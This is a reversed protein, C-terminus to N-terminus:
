LSLVKKKCTSIYICQGIGVPVVTYKKRTKEDATTKKSNRRFGYEYTLETQATVSGVPIVLM